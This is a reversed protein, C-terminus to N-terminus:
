VISLGSGAQFGACFTADSACKQPAVGCICIHGRITIYYEQAVKALLRVCWLTNKDASIKGALM